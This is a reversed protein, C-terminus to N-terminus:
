STLLFDVAQDPRFREFYDRDNPTWLEDWLADHDVHYIERDRYKGRGSAVDLPVDIWATVDLLSLLDPHIIGIGELILFSFDSVTRWPGLRSNPWDYQQYRLDEHNRAPILVQKAIRSRDISSWDDCRQRQQDITFDDASVITASGLEGALREALTSKGAGGFGSIGVVVPGRASARQQLENSLEDFTIKASM